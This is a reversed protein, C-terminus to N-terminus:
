LSLFSGMKGTYSISFMDNTFSLFTVLKNSSGEFVDNPMGVHMEAVPFRKKATPVLM